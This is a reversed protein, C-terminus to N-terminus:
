EGSETPEEEEGAGVQLSHLYGNAFVAFRHRKVELCADMETYEPPNRMLFETSMEEPIQLRHLQACLGGMDDFGGFIYLNAEHAVMMHKHRQAGPRGTTEINIWNGTTTDYAYLDDQVFNSRGGHIFIYRGSVAIAASQRPPPRPGASGPKFWTFTNLDLMYLDNYPKPSGKGGFIVMCHTDPMYAASANERIGPAPGETVRQLPSVNHSTLSPCRPAM